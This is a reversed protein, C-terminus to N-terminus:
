AKWFRLAGILVAEPGERTESPFSVIHDAAQAVLQLRATRHLPEGCSTNTRIPIMRAAGADDVDLTRTHTDRLLEHLASVVGATDVPKRICGRAGLRIAEVAARPTAAMVVIPVGGCLPDHQCAQVFAGGAMAPISLSVLVADPVTYRLLELAADGDAATDVACEFEQQLILTTAERCAVDDDVVLIRKM